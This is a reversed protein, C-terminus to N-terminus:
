NFILWVGIWIMWFRDFTILFQWFWVFVTLMLEFNLWCDMPFVQFILWCWDFNVVWQTSAFLSAHYVSAYKNGIDFLMECSCGPRAVLKKHNPLISHFSKQQFWHEGNWVLILFVISFIVWTKISYWDFGNLSLSAHHFDVWIM